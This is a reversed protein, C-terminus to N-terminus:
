RKEQDRQWVYYTASPRTSTSRAKQRPRVGSRAAFSGIQSICDTCACPGSEVSDRFGGRQRRVRCASHREPSLTHRRASKKPEMNYRAGGRDDCSRRRLSLWASGSIRGELHMIVASASASVNCGACHTLSHPCVEYRRRSRRPRVGSGRALRSLLPARRHRLM